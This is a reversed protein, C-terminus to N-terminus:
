EANPLEFSHFDKKENLNHPDLLGQSRGMETSSPTKRGLREKWTGLM